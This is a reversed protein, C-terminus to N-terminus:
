IGRRPSRVCVNSSRPILTLGLHLNRILIVLYKAFCEHHFGPEGYLAVSILILIGPEVLICIPWQRSCLNIMAKRVLFTCTDRGREMQFYLCLLRRSVAIVVPCKVTHSKPKWDLVHVRASRVTAGLWFIIVVRCFVVCLMQNVVKLIFCDAHGHYAGEIGGGGEM